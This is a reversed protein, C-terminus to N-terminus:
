HHHGLEAKLAQAKVMFAGKTVVREGNKLGSQIVTRGGTTAGIKV